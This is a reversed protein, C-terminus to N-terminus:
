GEKSRVKRKIRRRSSANSRKPKLRDRWGLPCESARLSQEIEELVAPAIKRLARVTARRTKGDGVKLLCVRDHVAAQAPPGIRALSELAILRLDRDELWALEVLRPAADRAAPGLEGLAWAAARRVDADIDRLAEILAHAAVGAQRGSKGLGEAAGRRMQADPDDLLETLQDISLGWTRLLTLRWLIVFRAMWFGACLRFAFGATTTAWNSPAGHAKLAFVQMVDGVDVLRLLQDIPWLLWDLPGLRLLIAFAVFLAVTALFWGAERRGRQLRTERPPDQWVRNVWRLVLGILFADVTVHMAVLILGSAVSEHSVNQVVFGLEDIADLVDAARMVHAATFELWDLFWPPRDFRYHDPGFASALQWNLFGFLVIQWCHLGVLIRRRLTIVRLSYGANLAIFGGTIWFAFAQAGLVPAAMLLIVWAASVTILVRDFAVRRSM